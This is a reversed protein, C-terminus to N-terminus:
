TKWRAESILCNRVSLALSTRFLYGLFDTLVYWGSINLAFQFTQIYRHLDEVARHHEKEDLPWILRDVARSIRGGKLNNEFKTLLNQLQQECSSSAAFIVSTKRFALRPAEVKLFDDFLKLVDALARLERRLEEVAVSAKKVGQVYEVTAQTLQITLSLLGAVGTAITFPDGM